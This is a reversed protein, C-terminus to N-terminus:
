RYVLLSANFANETVPDAMVTLQASWVDGDEDEFTALLWAGNEESSASSILWGAEEVQSTYFDLLDGASMDDDLWIAASSEARQPNGGGGSLRVRADAPNVLEPMIKLAGEEYPAMGGSDSCLSGEYTQPMVNMEVHTLDDEAYATFSFMAEAGGYCYLGHVPIGPDTFGRPGSYNNEPITFAEDLAEEYFDVVEIPELATTIFLRNPRLGKEDPLNTYLVTGVVEADEPLVLEFPAFEQPIDSVYVTTQIDASIPGYEEVLFEIVSTLSDADGGIVTVNSKGGSGQELHNSGGINQNAYATFAGSVIIMAIVLVLKKM